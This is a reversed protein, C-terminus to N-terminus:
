WFFKQGIAIGAGKSGSGFLYKDEVGLDFAYHAAYFGLGIASGFGSAGGGMIGGRLKFWSVPVYECGTSIKPMYTAGTQDTFQQSYGATWTLQQQNAFKFNWAFGLNLEAPISTFFKDTELTDLIRSKYNTMLSDATDDQTNQPYIGDIVKQFRYIKNNHYWSIGSILNNISIGCSIDDTVKIAAGVDMGIGHGAESVLVDYTALMKTAGHATSNIGSIDSVFLEGQVNDIKMYAPYINENRQLSTSDFEILKSDEIDAVPFGFMYRFTAGVTVEKFIKNLARIELKDSFTYEASALNYMEAKADDFKYSKNVENGKILEWLDKPTYVSLHNYVNLAYAEHGLQFGILSSKGNVNVSLGDGIADLIKDKDSTSWSNDGTKALYDDYLSKEVSSELSFSVPFLNISYKYGDSFSLLAPNYTAADLGKLLMGNSNCGGMFTPSLRSDASLTSLAAAALLLTTLFLRKM